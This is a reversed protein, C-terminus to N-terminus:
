ARRQAEGVRHDRPLQDGRRRRHVRARRAVTPVSVFEKLYDGGFARSLTAASTIGSAMVAFAVMFTLFPLRFAKNVYLAAGAAQPYKTVLEAYAFATFVALLLAVM